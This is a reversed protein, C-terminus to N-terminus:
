RRPVYVSGYGGGCLGADMLIREAAASLPRTANIAAKNSFTVSEEAVAFSSVGQAVQQETSTPAVMLACAEAVQAQKAADPIVNLYRNQRTAVRPFERAQTETAKVGDLGARDVRDAGMRLVAEQTTTGAALFATTSIGLGPIAALVTAIQIAEAVNAVYSDADAAGLTSILAM